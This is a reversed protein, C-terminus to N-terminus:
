TILKQSFKPIFRKWWKFFGYIRQLSKKNKPPPPIINKIAKIKRESIRIGNSSIRHGLYEIESFCFNSKSPNCTLNNDQLIKLMFGLKKLNQGWSSGGCLIDDM